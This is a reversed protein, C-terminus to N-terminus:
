VKPLEKPFFPHPDEDFCVIGPTCDPYPYLTPVSSSPASLDKVPIAIEVTTTATPAAVVLHDLSSQTQALPSAWTVANFAICITFLVCSTM